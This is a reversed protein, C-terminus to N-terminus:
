RGRRGGGGSAAKLENLRALQEKTFLLSYSKELDAQIQTLEERLKEGQNRGGSRMQKMVRQRSYYAKQFAGRVNNFQEGTIQLEFCVVAWDRELSSTPAGEGRGRAGRPQAQLYIFTGLVLAV